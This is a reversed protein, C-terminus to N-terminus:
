NLMFIAANLAMAFTVWLLYPVMIAAARKSVKYFLAITILITLWLLVIVVLGRSISKFGFFYIPWIINLAIQWEFSALAFRKMKNRAGEDLVLFIAIGMLAYLIIWVPGFLWGPPTFSPKALGAYWTSISAFTFVSGVAGGLECAMILLIAKPLRGVKM